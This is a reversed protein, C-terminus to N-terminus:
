FLLTSKSEQNLWKQLSHCFFTFFNRQNKPTYTSLIIQKRSKSVKLSSQWIINRVNSFVESQKKPTREVISRHVFLFVQITKKEYWIMPADKEKTPSPNVNQYEFITRIGSFLSHLTRCNTNKRFCRLCVSREDPDHSCNVRRFLPM